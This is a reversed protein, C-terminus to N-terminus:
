KHNSRDSLHQLISNRFNIRAENPVNDVANNHASQPSFCTFIHNHVAILTDFGVRTKHDVEAEVILDVKRHVNLRLGERMHIRMNKNWTFVHKAVNKM